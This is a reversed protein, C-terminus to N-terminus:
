TMYLRLYPHLHLNDVCKTQLYLVRSIWSKCFKNVYQVVKCWQRWKSVLKLTRASHLAYNCIWVEFSAGRIQKRKGYWYVWWELTSASRCSGVDVKIHWVHKEVGHFELLLHLLIAQTQLEQLWVICSLVSQVMSVHWHLGVCCVWCMSIMEMGRVHVLAFNCFQDEHRSRLYKSSVRHVSQAIWTIRETGTMVYPM